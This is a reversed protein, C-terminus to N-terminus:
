GRGGGGQLAVVGPAVEQVTGLIKRKTEQRVEWEIRPEGVVLSYAYDVQEETLFEIAHPTLLHNSVFLGLYARPISRIEDSTRRDLWERAQDRVAPDPTDTLGIMAMVDPNLDDM